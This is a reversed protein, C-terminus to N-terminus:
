ASLRTCSLWTSGTTEYALTGGSDQYAHLEIVDNVALDLVGASISATTNDGASVALRGGSRAREVTSGSPGTMIRGARNASAQASPNLFTVQGSVLYLGPTVIKIRNNASDWMGDNDVATNLLVQLWSGGGSVHSGSTLVLRARQPGTAAAVTDAGPGTMNVKTTVSPQYQNPSTRIGRCNPAIQVAIPLSGGGIAGGFVNEEVPCAHSQSTFNVGVAGTVITNSKVHGGVTTLDFWTGSATSDGCWNNTIAIAFSQDMTGSNGTYAGASGDDLPEFTNDDIAWNEGGNQIPAQTSLGFHNKRIAVGNSYQLNPDTGDRGKISCVGRGFHSGEVLHTHGGSLSILASASKVSSGSSHISSRLFFFTHPNSTGTSQSVDIVKGTFAPDNYQISVGIFGCGVTDRADIARVAGAGSTLMVNTAAGSGNSIGGDGEFVISRRNHFDISSVTITGAGGANPLRIKGGWAPLAAIARAVRGTDDVEPVILPFDALNVPLHSRALDVAAQVAASTADAYGSLRTELDILAGASIPTDESPENEWNKPTFTM